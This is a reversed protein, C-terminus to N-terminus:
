ARLVRRASQQRWPSHRVRCTLFSHMGRVRDFWLLRHGFGKEQVNPIFIVCKSGLTFVENSLACGNTVNSLEIQNGCCTIGIFSGCKHTVLPVSVTWLVGSPQFM